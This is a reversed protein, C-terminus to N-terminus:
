EGEEGGAGTARVDDRRRGAGRGAAAGTAACEGADHVPGRTDAASGDGHRAPGTDADAAGPEASWAHRTSAGCKAGGDTGDTGDTGNTAAATSAAASAASACM